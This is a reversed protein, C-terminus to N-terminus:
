AYTINVQIVVGEILDCTPESGFLQILYSAQIWHSPPPYTLKTMDLHQVSM